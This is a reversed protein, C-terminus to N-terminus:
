IWITMITGLILAPGFAYVVNKVKREAILIGVGQIAGILFGYLILAPIEWLTFYFGIAGMMKIDGGGMSGIFSFLLFILFLLFGTVIGSQLFSYEKWHHVISFVSLLAIALNVGNPLEMYKRDTAFHFALLAWVVIPILHNTTVIGVMMFLFSLIFTTVKEKKTYQYDNEYVKWLIQLTVTSFFIALIFGQLLSSPFLIHFLWEKIEIM